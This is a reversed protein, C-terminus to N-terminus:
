RSAEQDEDFIVMAKLGVRDAAYAVAEATQKFSFRATVLATADVAGTHILHLAKAMHEPGVGFSGTLHYQEYHLRRLDLTVTTGQSVGAFANLTGGPRLATLGAELAPGDSVAMLVVDAGRGDTMDKVATRLDTQGVDITAEGFARALALRHPMMGAVIVPRAGYARAVAACILGMPGDGVILVVDGAHISSDEAAKVACGVPEALAASEDALGEPVALVGREALPRPLRVREALGGPVLSNEFLRSCLTPQHRRCYYCAGCPVYPAVVVRQGVHWPLAADAAVIHGVLEHGLAYRTNGNAGQRVMKVDTTCIGCALPALIAEGAGLLPDDYEVWEVHGPQGVTVGKM